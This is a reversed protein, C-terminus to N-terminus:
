GKRTSGFGPRGAGVAEGAKWVELTHGAPSCRVCARGSGEEAGDGPAPARRGLHCRRGPTVPGPRHQGALDADAATPSHIHRASSIGASCYLATGDPANSMASSCM